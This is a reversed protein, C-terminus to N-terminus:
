AMGEGGVPVQVWAVSPSLVASSWGREEAAGRIREISGAPANDPVSLLLVGEEEPTRPVEPHAAALWDIEACWVAGSGLVTTLMEAAAMQARHRRTGREAFPHVDDIVIRNVDRGAAVSEAVRHRQPEGDGYPDVAWSSLAFVSTRPAGHDVRYTVAADFLQGFPIQPRRRREEAGIVVLHDSKLTVIRGPGDLAEAYGLLAAEFARAQDEDAPRTIRHMGDPQTSLHNVEIGKDALSLTFGDQPRGHDEWRRAPLFGAAALEAAVMRFEPVEALDSTLGPLGDSARGLRRNTADDQNDLHAHREAAEETPKRRRLHLTDTDVVWWEGWRRDYSYRPGMREAPPEAFAVCPGVITGREPTTPVEDPLTTSLGARRLADALYPLM